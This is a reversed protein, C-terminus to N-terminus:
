ALTFPFMENSCDSGISHGCRLGQPPVIRETAAAMSERDAAPRSAM